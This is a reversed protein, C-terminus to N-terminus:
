KLERTRKLPEDLEGWNRDSGQFRNADKDWCLERKRELLESALRAALMRRKWGPHLLPGNIWKSVSLRWIPATAGLDIQRKLNRLEQDKPRVARQASEALYAM